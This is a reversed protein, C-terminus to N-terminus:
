KHISKLDDSWFTIFDEIKAICAPIDNNLYSDKMSQIDRKMEKLKTKRDPTEINKYHSSLDDILQAAKQKAKQKYGRKQFVALELLSHITVPLFGGETGSIEGGSKESSILTVDIATESGVWREQTVFGLRSFILYANNDIVSISYNGDKESLSEATKTGKEKVSVSSLLNGSEDNIIGTITKEKKTDVKKALMEANIITNKGVPIELPTYGIYTFSLVADNDKVQIKFTGNIDSQTGNNTGKESVSVGPLLNRNDDIITGAITKGIPADIKKAVMEVNIITDEGVSIELPNYYGGYNYCLVAEKDKVQIKYNGSSDTKTTGSFNNKEQVIVDYLPNGTVKDTINGIVTIRDTKSPDIGLAVITIKINATDKKFGKFSENAVNAGITTAAFLDFLPPLLAGLNTRGEEQTTTLEFTLEVDAQKVALTGVDPHLSEDILKKNGVGIQVLIESILTEVNISKPFESM